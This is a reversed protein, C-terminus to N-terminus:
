PTTFPKLKDLAQQDPYPSTKIADYAERIAKRMAAVERRRVCNPRQCHDGCSHITAATLEDLHAHLRENERMLRDREDLAAVAAFEARRIANRAEDRLDENEARLGAVEAEFGALKYGAENCRSCSVTRGSLAERLEDREKRLQRVREVVAEDNQHVCYDSVGMENPEGCLYDIRDISHSLSICGDRYKAAYANAKSERLEDRERELKGIQERHRNNLITLAELLTKREDAFRNWEMLDILDNMTDNM